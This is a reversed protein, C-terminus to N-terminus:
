AKTPWLLNSRYGYLYLAVYEPLVLIVGVLVYALIFWSDVAMPEHLYEETLVASDWIVVGPLWIQWLRRNLITRSFAFGFVGVLSFIWTQTFRLTGYM